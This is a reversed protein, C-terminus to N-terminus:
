VQRPPPVARAPERVVGPPPQPSKLPALVRDPYRRRLELDAAIAVRRTPVTLAEWERRTEKAEALMGAINTAKAEM